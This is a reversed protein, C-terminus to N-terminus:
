FFVVCCFSCFCFITTNYHARQQSCTTTKSWKQEKKNTTWFFFIFVQGLETYLIGRARRMRMVDYYDLGIKSMLEEDSFQLAEHASYKVLEQIHETKFRRQRLWVEFEARTWYVKFYNNYYKKNNLQPPPSHSFCYHIYIYYCICYM